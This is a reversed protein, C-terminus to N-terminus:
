STHKKPCKEQGFKTWNSPCFWPILIKLENCILTNDDGQESNEIHRFGHIAVHHDFGHAQQILEAAFRPM